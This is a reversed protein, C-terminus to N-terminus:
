RGKEKEKNLEKKRMMEQYERERQAIKEQEQQKKEVEPDINKEKSLDKKDSDKAAAKEEEKLKEIKEDKEKKMEGAIDGAEQLKGFSQKQAAQNKNLDIDAQKQASQVIVQSDMQIKSNDIGQYAAVSELLAGAVKKGIDPKIAEKGKDYIEAAKEQIKKGTEITKNLLSNKEKSVLYAQKNSEMKKSITEIEKKIATEKQKLQNIQDRNIQPNKNLESVKDEIGRLQGNLSAEEHRLESNLSKWEHETM